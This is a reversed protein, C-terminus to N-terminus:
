WVSLAVFVQKIMYCCCCYCISHHFTWRKTRATPVNVASVAHV